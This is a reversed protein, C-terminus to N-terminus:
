TFEPSDRSIESRAIERRSPLLSMTRRADKSLAERAASITRSSEEWPLDGISAEELARVAEDLARVANAVCVAIRRAAARQSDTAAGGLRVSRMLHARASLIVNASPSLASRGALSMDRAIGRGTRSRLAAAVAEAEGLIDSAKRMLVAMKARDAFVADVEKLDSELFSESRAGAKSRSSRGSPRSAPKPKSAM